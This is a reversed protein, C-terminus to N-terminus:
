FGTGSRATSVRDEAMKFASDAHEELTKMIIAFRGNQIVELWLGYEVTHFLTLVIVGGQNEVDAKLGNRADGTQDAWIAGGQAANQIDKAAEEFAETAVDDWEPGDFWAAIGDWLLVRSGSAM